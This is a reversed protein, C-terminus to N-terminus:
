FLLISRPCTCFCQVIVLHSVGYVCLGCVPGIREEGACGLEIRPGVVAEQERTGFSRNM